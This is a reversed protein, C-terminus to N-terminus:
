DHAPGTAPRLVTTIARAATMPDNTIAIPEAWPWLYRGHEDAYVETAAQTHRDVVTLHPRRGARQVLTTSFQAGLADALRELAAPASGHAPATM